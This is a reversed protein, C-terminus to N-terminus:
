SKDLKAAVHEVQLNNYIRLLMQPDKHGAILMTEPVNLNKVRMFDSLSNHRLDHPVADKIKYKKCLKAFKKGIVDVTINFPLTANKILELGRKTLPITRPVTKTIPIHLTAGKLHDHSIRIVEGSRMGTELMIQMVNRMVEDTQNGRILLNLEKDSLRRNRPESKKPRRISLVPNAAPYGWEKKCTTFITSIVDLKRNISTGTISKLQRDRFKGIVDPTIKNIPYASWAECFLAKIINRENVFGKKTISVEDIYRLGIENFTPYKINTIGADERRIKLETEIGWRKADERLKFSKIIQPHDKVRVLCQWKRYHKRITSM